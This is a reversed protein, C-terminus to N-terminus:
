KAEDQAALSLLAQGELRYGIWETKPKAGIADYFEIAPKNWDLVSWEFRPCDNMVAVKALYQLLRKGAGVGRHSPSVYLDELYLGNKGLWTSFNLFYVSFGVPVGDSECILAKTTTNEDFLNTRIHEVDAVVEDEAKEYRALEVVFGLIVEADEASAERIVLESM